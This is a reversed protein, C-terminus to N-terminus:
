APSAPGEDDIPPEEDIPPLIFYLKVKEPEKYDEIDDLDISTGVVWGWPDFLRVFSV